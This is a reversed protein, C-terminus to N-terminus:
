RKTRLRTLLSRIYFLKEPIYILFNRLKKNVLALSLIGASEFFKFKGSSGRTPGPLYLTGTELVSSISIVSNFGGFSSEVIPPFFSSGAM